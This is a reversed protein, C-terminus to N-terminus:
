RKACTYSACPKDGGCGDCTEATAHEHCVTCLDPVLMKAGCCASRGEAYPWEDDQREDVLSDHALHEEQMAARREGDTRPRLIAEM